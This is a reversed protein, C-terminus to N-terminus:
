PVLVEEFQVITVHSDNNLNPYYLRLDNKLVEISEYGDTIANNDNLFKLFTTETNKVRILICKNKSKNFANYLGSPYSRVGERITTTKRGDQILPIYKDDFIIEGLVTLPQIKIAVLDSPGEYSIKLLNCTYNIADEVSYAKIIKVYPIHMFVDKLSSFAQCDVVKGWCVGNKAVYGKRLEVLQGIKIRKPNFSGSLKRLEWEKTGNVFWAYPETCLPIFLRKM